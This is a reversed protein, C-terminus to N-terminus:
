LNLVSAERLGLIPHCHRSMATLVHHQPGRLKAVPGDGDRPDAHSPATARAPRRKRFRGRLEPAADPDHLELVGRGAVSARPVDGLLYDLLSEDNKAYYTDLAEALVRVDGLALNMGKAGTPPVIHAADGALFLRGYRMPEIVVSRMATIGRELIPGRNVEPREDTSLREALEDWIQDDSWHDFTEDPRVGSLASQHDAFAHLVARFWERTARLDVGRDRPPSRRPNRALLISLRARYRRFVDSPFRAIRRM